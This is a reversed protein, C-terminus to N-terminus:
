KAKKSNLWEDYHQESVVKVAIPMFGHKVGCLESCQGYYTGEKEIRFWTENLRGPVADKKIGLSPVAFSHLVDESTVVVRVTKGAPVVIPNDVDLLRLQGPKLDKEEIMLSDFQVKQEPYEYTWYWQHGIAKVTLDANEIKSAFFMLKLSPIGIVVLILVPLLTWVVELLTHHATQSPVPNRSARFRYLVYVLLATVFIAICTIIVLLLHHMENIGEMIPSAASQFGIQWPQPVAANANQSLLSILHIVGNAVSM